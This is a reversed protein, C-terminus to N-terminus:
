VEGETAAPTGPVNTSRAAKRGGRREPTQSEPDAPSVAEELIKGQSIMWRVDGSEVELTDGPMLRRGKHYCEKKVDFKM